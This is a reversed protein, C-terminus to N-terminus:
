IMLEVAIKDSIFLYEPQITICNKEIKIQNKERLQEVKKLWKEKKEEPLLNLCSNIDIGWITRIGTIVLENFHIEPTILEEEYWKISNAIYKEYLANNAVNWRRHTGTYSHASPGLGAYPEGKWYSSNHLAHHGPIAYNSIEYHQYGTSTLLERAAFFMDSLLAEDAERVVKKRVMYDYVTGEERTLSYLSIHQPGLEISQNLDKLWQDVNQGPFGFILDINFKKFGAQRGYKLAAMAQRSTHNRNFQRLFKEEFTQIGISLRDIGLRLWSELNQHTIDEPNAELTSEQAALSFNERVSKLLKELQRFNLLSPTGGGLYLTTFRVSAFDSAVLGAERCIAEITLDVTKLNTSFHFNCYHCARHCYPIHIYIGPM